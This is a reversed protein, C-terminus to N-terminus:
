SADGEDSGRPSGFGALFGHTLSRGRPANQGGPGFTTITAALDEDGPPDARRRDSAEAQSDIHLTRTPFAFDVGVEDALSKIALLMHHRAQLELSWTDVKVFAYFM